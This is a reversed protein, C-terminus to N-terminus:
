PKPCTQAYACDNFLRGNSSLASPTAEAFLGAASLVIKTPNGQAITDARRGSKFTSTPGFHVTGVPALLTQAIVTPAELIWEASSRSSHYSVTKSWRWRGSDKMSIKWKKSSVQGIKVSIRDGPKVPCSREGSCGRIQTASNPLLEYWAYYQPGALPNSPLSQEAAGAQILDKTKYGGIGAWTAAFGPPLLGASPVTFSGTVATVPSGKPTVAYGSWNLSSVTGGHLPLAVHPNAPILVGIPNGASASGAAALPFAVASLAAITLRTIWRPV